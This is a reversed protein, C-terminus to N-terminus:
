KKGQVTWSKYKKLFEIKANSKFKSSSSPQRRRRLATTLMTCIQVNKDGTPQTDLKQFSYIRISCGPRCGNCSSRPHGFWCRHRFKTRKKRWIELFWSNVWQNRETPGSKVSIDSIKRIKLFFAKSAHINYKIKDQTHNVVQQSIRFNAMKLYNSGKWGLLVFWELRKWPIGVYMLAVGASHYVASIPFRAFYPM